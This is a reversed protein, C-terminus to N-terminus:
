ENSYLVKARECFAEVLSDAVQEFVKGFTANLMRSNFDFKLNMETKCGDEGLQSFLWYGNLTTFPGEVLQLDIRQPAALKNRTTFQQSVGARTLTLSAVMLEPSSEIVESRSCSPLYDQYLAVDNVVDFM